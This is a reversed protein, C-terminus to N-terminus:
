NKKKVNKKIKFTRLQYFTDVRVNHNKERMDLSCFYMILLCATLIRGRVSLVTIDTCEKAVNLGIM